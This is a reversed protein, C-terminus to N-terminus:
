YILALGTAGDAIAEFAEGVIEDADDTNVWAVAVGAAGAKIKRGVAIAGSAVVPYVGHRGVVLPYEDSVQPGSISTRAVPVDNLAVGCVAKSDAGAPGVLRSGTRREVLQGGVIAEAANMSIKLGPFGFKAQVSAM